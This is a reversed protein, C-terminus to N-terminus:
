EGQVSVPKKSSASHHDSDFITRMGESKHKVEERAVGNGCGIVQRRM